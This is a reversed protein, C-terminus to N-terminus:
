SANQKKREDDVEVHTRRTLTSASIAVHRRVPLWEAEQYGGCGPCRVLVGFDMEIVTGCEPCQLWFDTM